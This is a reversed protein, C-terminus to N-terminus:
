TDKRPRGPKNHGVNVGLLREIHAKFPKDGLPTGTQVASRIENLAETVLGPSFSAQYAAAQLAKTKGLQQYVSHPSVVANAEALANARYSSWTYDQPSSVMGARVPNLEIYQYCRLLYVDTNVLSAKFRGQWLTGTKGYKHNFYPVYKRGLSQMFKSLNQPDASSILWHVHNDMLVYAHVSVQLFAAAEKAMELYTAKDADSKFIANKNHGRAIAHIPVDPLFFRPKRPM